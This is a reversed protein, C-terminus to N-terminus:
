KATREKVIPRLAIDVAKTYLEDRTLVKDQPVPVSEGSYYIREILEVGGNKRYLGVRNTNEIVVSLSLAKLTGRFGHTEFREYAGDWSAQRNSFSALVIVLSPYLIFVEGYERHLERLTHERVADFKQKDRKGTIRDYLGGVKKAMEKWKRDYVESPLVDFNAEKLKGAILSEFKRQVTEGNPIWDPTDLPVLAITRSKSGLEEFLRSTNSPPSPKPFCSTLILLFLLAGTMRRKM